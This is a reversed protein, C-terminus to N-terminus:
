RDEKEEKGSKGDILKGKISLDQISTGGYVTIEDYIEVSVENGTHADIFKIQSGPM